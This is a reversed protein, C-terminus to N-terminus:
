NREIRTAWWICAVLLVQAPLRAGLLFESIDPFLEPHRWMYFNAPTVLVTLVILGIGGLARTRPMLIALAGILELVGSVYVAALPFPIYPPVIRLFSDTLLFHAVGGAVFWLIVFGLALNRTKSPKRFDPAM